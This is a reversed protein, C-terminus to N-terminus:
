TTPNSGAGAPPQRTATVAEPAARTFGFVGAASTAVLAFGTFLNFANSAVLRGESFAWLTVGFLSLSLVAFPGKSDSVVGFWKLLQTLAVVPITVAAIDNATMGPTRDLVPAIQFILALGIILLLNLV